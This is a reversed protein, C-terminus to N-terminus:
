RLGRGGSISNYLLLLVVGLSSWRIEIKAPIPNCGGAGPLCFYNANVMFAAEIRECVRSLLINMSSSTM